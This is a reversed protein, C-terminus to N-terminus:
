HALSASGAPGVPYSGHHDLYGKGPDVHRQRLQYRLGRNIEREHELLAIAENYENKTRVIAGRYHALLRKVKPPLEDPSAPDVGLRALLRNNEEELHRCVDFLSDTIDKNNDKQMSAEYLSVRESKSFASSLQSQQSQPPHPSQLDEQDSASTFTISDDHNKINTSKQTSKYMNLLGHRLKLLMGHITKPTSM